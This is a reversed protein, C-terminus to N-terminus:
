LTARSDSRSKRTKSRRRSIIKWAVDARIIKSSNAVFENAASGDLAVQIGIFPKKISVEALSTVLPTAIVKEDKDSSIETTFRM